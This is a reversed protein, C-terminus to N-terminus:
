KKMEKETEELGIELLLPVLHKMPTMKKRGLNAIRLRLKEDIPVNLNRIM